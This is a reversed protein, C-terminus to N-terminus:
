VGATRPCPGPAGRLGNAYRVCLTFQAVVAGLGALPRWERLTSATDGRDYANLGTEQDAWGQVAPGVITLVLGIPFRLSMSRNDRMPDDERIEVLRRVTRQFRAQPHLEISRNGVACKEGRSGRVVAESIEIRHERDSRSSIIM